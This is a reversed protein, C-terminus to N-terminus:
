GGWVGTQPCSSLHQQGPAVGCDACPRQSAPWDRESALPVGSGQGGGQGQSDELRRLVEAVLQTDVQDLGDLLQQGREGDMVRRLVGALAAWDSTKDLEALLPELGARAKPDGRTTAVVAVLAPAWQELLGPETEAPPAPQERALRLVEALAQDGDTAPGPLRALLEALRVGEVQGVRADLEDFSAPVADDGFEALEGALTRLNSALRGEGTQYRLLTAALRHAVVLVPDGGARRLYKALNHHSVAVEPDGAAYSYRLAAQEMSIADQQHGVADELYGLASFVQGLELIAGEAQYVARCDHLLTRADELRGLELLARYDNFRSRAQDLAPADRDVKSRTVESNLELAVEWRGLEGAAMGGIQLISERVNWPNVQEEVVSTEPPSALQGRLQQVEALVREHEGLMQLLQLRQGRDSLQTWSGFGAQRTFGEMEDVLVLAERLRWTRRLLNVLEGAVASAQEYRQQAVAAALVERLQREGKAPDIYGVARALVGADILERDTGQTAQAIQRLLPLLAAVTAPSQDRMLARELLISATAWESLRLLHPAAARGAHVVMGTAEGGEAERAQWYIAQWFAALVEDVAAQLGPGAQTRAAEAVGPHVRYGVPGGEDAGSPQEANFLAQEQLVAITTALPPPDGQHGLRQWIAPWVVKLIASGRDPEELACVVGLLVRAGEPLVGAVGRTWGALTQLFQEPALASEGEAFFAGLRDAGPLTPEAEALRARLQEPDAAQADALELLKPHGQVVNLVRRVLVVGSETGDRGRTGTQDQRLLRGLNPLERALLLAEDLSLAHIPETLVRGDLGQPRIRSTLVLRSEGGHGLLATVLQQWAPDRWGGQDTLLSELNDLVLLVANDELLQTLRPLFRALEASSTTAQVMALGPLQAELAVALDRLSGAVEKGQEPAQWWALAGFVPEHRYALELACATKGAGAMGHLVVANRGQQNRPALVLSARALVGVRGVFRAPEDPFFSTKATNVNFDPEGRPPVLRLDTALPGFLAPTAVSLAPARVSPREGAAQPLALQLARALTHDQGLLGEYLQEDLAIAFDDVVPFRMAVVACGLRAVLERAL